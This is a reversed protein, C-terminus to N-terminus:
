QYRTYGMDQLKGKLLLDNKDINDLQLEARSGTRLQRVTVILTEEGKRFYLARIDWGKETKDLNWGRAPLESRFFFLAETWELPGEYKFVGNRFLGGQFSHSERTLLTYEQPIPIDEFHVDRYLTVDGQASAQNVAVWDNDNDGLCGAACALVLGALATWAVKGAKM